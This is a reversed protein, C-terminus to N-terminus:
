VRIWSGMLNTGKRQYGKNRKKEVTQIRAKVREPKRMERIYQGRGPGSWKVRNKEKGQDKGKNYIGQMRECASQRRCRTKPGKGM